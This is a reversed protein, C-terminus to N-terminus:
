SKTQGFKCTKIRIPKVIDPPTGLTPCNTFAAQFKLSTQLNLSSCAGVGGDGQGVGSCLGWLPTEPSSPNSPTTGPVLPALQVVLETELTPGLWLSVASLNSMGGGGDGADDVHLSVPEVDCLLPM